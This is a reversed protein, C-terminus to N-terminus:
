MKSACHQHAYINGKIIRTTKVAVFTTFWRQQNSLLLINYKRMKKGGYFWQRVYLICMYIYIQIVICIFCLLFLWMWWVFSSTQCINIKRKDMINQYSMEHTLFPFTHLVISVCSILSVCFACLCHFNSVSQNLSTHLYMHM